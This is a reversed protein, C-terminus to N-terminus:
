GLSLVQEIARLYIETKGSGTVGQLMFSAFTESAIHKALTNLAAAQEQTPEPRTDVEAAQSYPNIKQEIEFKEILGKDVLTKLRSYASKDLKTLDAGTIHGEYPIHELLEKAGKQRAGM